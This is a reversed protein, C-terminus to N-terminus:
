RDLQMVSSIMPRMLQERDGANMESQLNNRSARMYQDVMQSAMSPRLLYGYLDELNEQGFPIPSLQDQEIADQLQQQISEEYQDLDIPRSNRAAALMADQRQKLMRRIMNSM